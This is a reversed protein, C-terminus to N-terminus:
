EASYIYEMPHTWLLLVGTTPWNEGLHKKFHCFQGGMKRTRDSSDDQWLFLRRNQSSCPFFFVMSRSLNFLLQHRVEVDSFFFLDPELIMSCIMCFPYIQDFLDSNSTAQLHFWPNCFHSFLPAWNNHEEPRKYCLSHIEPKEMYTLHLDGLEQFLSSLSGAAVGRKGYMSSLWMDGFDEAMTAVSSSLICLTRTASCLIRLWRNSFCCSFLATSNCHEVSFFFSTPSLLILDLACPRLDICFLHSIPLSLKEPQTPKPWFPRLLLLAIKDSSFYKPFTM